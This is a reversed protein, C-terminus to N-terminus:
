PIYSYVGEGRLLGWSSSRHAQNMARPVSIAKYCHKMMQHDSGPCWRSVDISDFEVVFRQTQLQDLFSGNRVIFGDGPHGKVHTNRGADCRRWTEQSLGILEVDLVRLLVDIAGGHFGKGAVADGVAGFDDMMRGMGYSSITRAM